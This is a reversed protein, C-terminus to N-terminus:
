TRRRFRRAQQLPLRLKMASVKVKQDERAPNRFGCPRTTALSPRSVALTRRRLTTIYRGARWGSLWRITAVTQCGSTESSSAAGTHVPLAVHGPHAAFAPCERGTLYLCLCIRCRRSCGGGAGTRVAAYGRCRWTMGGTVGFHVWLGADATGADAFGPCHSQQCCAM